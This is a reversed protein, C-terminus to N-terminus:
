KEEVVVINVNTVTDELMTPNLHRNTMKLLPMIKMLTKLITLIMTKKQKNRNVIVPRMTKLLNRNQIKKRWIMIRNNLFHQIKIKLGTKM